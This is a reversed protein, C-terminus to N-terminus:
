KTGRGDDSIFHPNDQGQVLYSYRSQNKSTFTRMDDYSGMMGNGPREKTVLARTSGSETMELQTPDWQASINASARPIKPINDNSWTTRTEQAPPYPSSYDKKKTRSGYIIFALLLILLLGGLVCSIVVVALLSSDNCNFGSYGFPCKVCANDKAKQGSPCASCSRQSFNSRIYGTQCPCSVIGDSTYCETTDLDCPKPKMQCLDTDNFEAGGLLGCNNCDISEKLDAEFSKQNTASNLQYINDVSAIVSGSRLELVRSEIYSPDKRLASGLADVIQKATTKFIPSEPNEM